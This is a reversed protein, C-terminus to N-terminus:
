LVWRQNSKFHSIPHSVTINVGPSYDSVFTYAAEGSQSSIYSFIELAGHFWKISSYKYEHRIIKAFAFHKIKRFSVNWFM